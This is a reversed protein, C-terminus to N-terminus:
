MQYKIGRGIPPPDNGLSLDYGGKEIFVSFHLRYPVDGFGGPMGRADDFSQRLLNQHCCNSAVTGDMLDRRSAHAGLARKPHQWYPAAIAVHLCEPYSRVEPTRELYQKSPLSAYHVGALNVSHEEVIPEPDAEISFDRGPHRTSGFIGVEKGVV